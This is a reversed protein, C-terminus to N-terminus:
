EMLHCKEEYRAKCSQLEQQLRTSFGHQEVRFRENGERTMEMHRDYTKQSEFMQQQPWIQNEVELQSKDNELRWMLNRIIDEPSVFQPSEEVM